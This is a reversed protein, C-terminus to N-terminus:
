HMAGVPPVARCLKGEERLQEAVRKVARQPAKRRKDFLLPELERVAEGLAVPVGVGVVRVVLAGGDEQLTEVRDELQQQLEGERELEVLGKEDREM